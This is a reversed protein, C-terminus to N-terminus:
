YRVSNADLSNFYEEILYTVQNATQYGYSEILTRVAAEDLLGYDSLSKNVWSRTGRNYAIVQGDQVNHYTANGAETYVVPVTLVASPKGGVAYATLEGGDNVIYLNTIGDQNMQSIVGADNMVNVITRETPIYGGIKKYMAIQITADIDVDPLLEIGILITDGEEFIFTQTNVDQEVGNYEVYLQANPDSTLYRIGYETGFELEEPLTVSAAGPTVGYEPSWLDVMIRWGGRGTIHASTKADNWTLTFFGTGASTPFNAFQPLINENIKYTYVSEDETQWEPGLKLTGSEVVGPLAIVGSEWVHDLANVLSRFDDTSAAQRSSSPAANVDLVFPSTSIIEGDSVFCLDCKCYGPCSVMQTTLEIVVAGYEDVTVLYRGLETDVSSNDTLVGTRDPKEERFLITQEAGPTYPGDKTVIRARVFRTSTDGQKVNVVPIEGSPVM